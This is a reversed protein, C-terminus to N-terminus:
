SKLNEELYDVFKKAVTIESWDLAGKGAMSQSMAKKHISVFQRKVRQLESLTVNRAPLIMPIKQKSPLTVTVPGGTGLGRLDTQAAIIM